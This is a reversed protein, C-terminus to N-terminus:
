CVFMIEPHARQIVAYLGYTQYECSAPADLTNLCHMVNFECVIDNDHNESASEPYHLKGIM